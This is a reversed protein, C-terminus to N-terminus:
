AAVKDSPSPGLPGTELWAERTWLAHDLGCEPCKVHSLVDPLGAFSQPDVELGTHIPRGTHPCKVFLIAM